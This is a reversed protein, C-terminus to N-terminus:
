QGNNSFRNYWARAAGAIGTDPGMSALLIQTKDAPVLTCSTRVVERIRDMFLHSSRMLGGGLAITEPSFCTVLNAIGVGIYYGEREVAKLALADGREAMRCIQKATLDLPLTVGPPANDRMWNVMAPGAAMWEWCGHAGCYCLPGSAEIMHHGVEPHSGDVGRYLKGDFVMGGGIGTSVTIYIFRSKGRGAGWAAEALAAADADNEVAVSVGFERALPAM